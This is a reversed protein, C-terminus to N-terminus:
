PSVQKKSTNSIVNLALTRLQVHVAEVALSGDLVAWSPSRGIRAHAMSGSGRFCESGGRRDWQGDEGLVWYGSAPSSGFLQDYIASIREQFEVTEFFEGDDGRALRRQRARDPDLRIYVTLDPETALRNIAAVWSPDQDMSQYALSSYVYRDTVVVQGRERAPVVEAEQHDLRDAAFLLAISATNVGQIRHKLIERILRGVPRDSPECTLMAPVKSKVLWDKLLRAQTTTGAGDIGEIAILSGSM